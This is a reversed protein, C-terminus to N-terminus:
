FVPYLSGPRRACLHSHVEFILTCWDFGLLAKMDNKRSQKWLRIPIGKGATCNLLVWYLLSLFLSLCIWCAVRLICSTKSGQITVIKTETFFLIIFVNAKNFSEINGNGTLRFSLCILNYFLTEWYTKYLFWRFSLTKEQYLHICDKVREGKLCSSRGLTPFLFAIKKKPM